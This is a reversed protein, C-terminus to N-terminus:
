SKGMHRKARMLDGCHELIKFGDLLLDLHVFPHSRLYAQLEFWGLFDRGQCNRAVRCAGRNQEISLSWGNRWVNKRTDGESRVLDCRSQVTIFGEFFLDLDAFSHSRFYAHLQLCIGNGNQLALDFLM